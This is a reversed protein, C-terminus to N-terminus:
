LHSRYSNTISHGGLLIMKSLTYLVGPEKVNQIRWPYSTYNNKQERPYITKTYSYPRAFSDMRNEVYTPELSEVAIKQLGKWKSKTISVEGPHGYDMEYILKNTNDFEPNFFGVTEFGGNKDNYVYAVMDDRPCCGAGSYQSVVFDKFGDLNIDELTDDSYGVDATDSILKIFRNAKLIYIDSFLSTEYGDYENIFRKVLLHKRSTSFINGFQFSAHMNRFHYVATDLSGAFSPDTKHQSVIQLAHSLIRNLNHYNTDRRRNAEGEWDEDILQHQLPKNIIIDIKKDAAATKTKSVCGWSILLLIATLFRYRM